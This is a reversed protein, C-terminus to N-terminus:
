WRLYPAAFVGSGVVVVLVSAYVRVCVQIVQCRALHYETVANESVADHVTSLVAILLNLMLIAMIVIYMVMLFIGADFEWTPGTCRENRDDEFIGFDFGPGYYYMSRRFCFVPHLCDEMFPLLRYM